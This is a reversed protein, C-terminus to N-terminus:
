RFCLSRCLNSRCFLESRLLNPPVPLDSDIKQRLIHKLILPCLRTGSWLFGTNFNENVEIASCCLELVEFTEKITSIRNILVM